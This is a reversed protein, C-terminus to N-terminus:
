LASIATFPKFDRGRSTSDQPAQAMNVTGDGLPEALDVGFGGGDEPALTGDAAIQGPKYTVV